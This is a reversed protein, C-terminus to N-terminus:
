ETEDELKNFCALAAEDLGALMSAADPAFQRADALMRLKSVRDGLALTQALLPSDPQGAYEIAQTVTDPFEWFAAIRASLTRSQAFLARVFHDSQPLANDSPIQDILCFAVVLGVNQMLGALYAEFANARMTLALMNSAAACKESQRWILPAAQKALGGSQMSMVPRFAVRALLMRMGNQGLLMIAADISDIPPSSHYRPRYCPRNAERYVEAVLMVDQALQRSLNAINMNEDRLTRMLHPIIEPVRPVLAAAALPAQALRSLENLIQNENEEPAQQSATGTLWRYYMADIEESGAPALESDSPPLDEIAPRNGENSGGLLKGIWGV